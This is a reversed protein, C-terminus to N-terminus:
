KTRKFKGTFLYNMVLETIFATLRFDQQQDDDLVHLRTEHCRSALQVVLQDKQFKKEKNWHSIANLLRRRRLRIYARAGVGALGAFLQRLDADYLATYADVNL